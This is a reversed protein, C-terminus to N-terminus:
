FNISQTNYTSYLKIHENKYNVVQIVILLVENKNM